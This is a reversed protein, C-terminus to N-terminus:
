WHSARGVSGCCSLCYSSSGIIKYSGIRREVSQAMGAQQGKFHSIVLMSNYNDIHNGVYNKKIVKGNPIGLVLDDGEADMIDVDFYKTWEHSEM